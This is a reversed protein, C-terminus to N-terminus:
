IDCLSMSFDLSITEGALLNFYAGLNISSILIGNYDNTPSSCMFLNNTAYNWNSTATFNLPPAICQWIGNEYIPPNSFSSSAAVARAYGTSSNPELGTIDTLTQATSISTRADLGFYYNVLPAISGANLMLKLVYDEGDINIINKKNYLSQIVDGKKSFHHLEKINLIGHWKTTMTRTM